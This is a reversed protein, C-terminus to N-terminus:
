SYLEVLEAAIRLASAQRKVANPEIKMLEEARSAAELGLLWRDDRPLNQRIMVADVAALIQSALRMSESGLEVASPGTSSLLADMLRRDGAPNKGNLVQDM